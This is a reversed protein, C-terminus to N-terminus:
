KDIDKKRFVITKGIKTHPIKKKSTLQYLSAKSMRLYEACERVNMYPSQNRIALDYESDVNSFSDISYAIRLKDEIQPIKEKIETYFESDIYVPKKINKIDKIKISENESDTLWLPPIIIYKPHIRFKDTHHSFGETFIYGFEQWLKVINTLSFLPKKNGLLGKNM